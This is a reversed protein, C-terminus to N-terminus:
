VSVLSCSVSVSKEVGLFLLRDCSLWLKASVGCMREIKKKRAVKRYELYAAHEEKGMHQVCNRGWGERMRAVNAQVYKGSCLM